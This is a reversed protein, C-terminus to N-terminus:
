REVPDRLGQDGIARTGFHPDHAIPGAGDSPLLAGGGEGGFRERRTHAGQVACELHAGGIDWGAIM